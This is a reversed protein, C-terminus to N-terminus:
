HEVGFKSSSFSMYRLQVSFAPLELLATVASYNVHPLERNFCQRAKIHEVCFNNIKTDCLLESDELFVQLLLFRVCLGAAMFVSVKELSCGEGGWEGGGGLISSTVASVLQLLLDRM